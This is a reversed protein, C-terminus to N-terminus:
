GREAKALLSRPRPWLTTPRRRRCSPERRPRTRRAREIAAACRRRSPRGPRHERPSRRGLADCRRACARRAARGVDDVPGFHTLALASRSGPPSRTSRRAGVGRRRHRAAADARAHADRPPIRVGAMDGVFATGRRSTCTPLRPPLRPRAHVRRAFGGLVTEGGSLVHLNAEPVPCSRAGCRACATRAATCGRPARSSGSPTSWTRRAASTSTSRRPRALPARARGTAGAHDFHIHTLLLARPREGGLAELLTTRARSRARSRRARRRGRWCCIVHTAARPAHVDIARM